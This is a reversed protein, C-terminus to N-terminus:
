LEEYSEPDLARLPTSTRIREQAGYMGLSKRQAPTRGSPRSKLNLRNCSLGCAPKQALWSPCASCHGVGLEERSETFVLKAAALAPDFLLGVLSMLWFDIMTKVGVPNSTSCPTPPTEQRTYCGSARIRSRWATSTGSSCLPALASSCARASPNACPHRPIASRCRPLPSSGAKRTAFRRRLRDNVFSALRAATASSEEGVKGKRSLGAKALWTQAM